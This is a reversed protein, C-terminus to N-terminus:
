KGYKSEAAEAAPDETVAALVTEAKRRRFKSALKTAAGKATVVARADVLVSGQRRRLQARSQDVLTYLESPSDQQAGGLRDMVMQTAGFRQVMIKVLGKDDADYAVKLCEATTNALIAEKDRRHSVAIQFREFLYFYAHMNGCHCAHKLLAVLQGKDEDNIEATATGSFIQHKHSFAVLSDKGEEGYEIMAAAINRLYSKIVLEHKLAHGEFCALASSFADFDRVVDGTSPNRNQLLLYLVTNLMAADTVVDPAFIEDVMDFRKNVVASVLVLQKGAGTLAAIDAKVADTLAAAGYVHVLTSELGKTLDAELLEPLFHTAISKVCEGVLASNESQMAPLLIGQVVLALQAHVDRISFLESQLLGVQENENFKQPTEKFLKFLEASAFAMKETDLRIMADRMFTCLTRACATVDVAKIAAIIELTFDRRSM